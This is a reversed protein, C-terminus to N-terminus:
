EARTPVETLIMGEKANNQGPNSAYLAKRHVNSKSSHILPKSLDLLLPDKVKYEKQIPIIPYEATVNEYVESTKPETSMAHDGQITPLYRSHLEHLLPHMLTRAIAKAEPVTAM